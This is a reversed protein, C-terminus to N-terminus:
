LNRERAAPLDASWDPVGAELAVGCTAVIDALMRYFAVLAVLEIVEDDAWLDRATAMVEDRDGVEACMLDAVRMAASERASSYTATEDLTTLVDEHPIGLRTAILAHHSFEYTSSHWRATRLIVLERLRPDLHPHNIFAAGLRVVRDLVRPQHLLTKFLNLPEGDLHLGNALLERQQESPDHVPPVVSGASV